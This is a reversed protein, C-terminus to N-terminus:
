DAEASHQVTFCGSLPFFAIGSKMRVAGFFFSGVKRQGCYVRIHAMRAKPLRERAEEIRCAEVYEELVGFNKMSVATNLHRQLTEYEVTQM